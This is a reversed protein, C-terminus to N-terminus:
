PLTKLRTLAYTLATGVEMWGEIDEDRSLSDFRKRLLPVAAKLEGPTLMRVAQLALWRRQHGLLNVQRSFERVCRLLAEARQENAADLKRKANDLRQRIEVRQEIPVNM